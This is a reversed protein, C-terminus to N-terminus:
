SLCDAMWVNSLKYYIWRNEFSLGRPKSRAGRPRPGGVTRGSHGNWSCCGTEYGYQHRRYLSVTWSCCGNRECYPVGWGACAKKPIEERQGYCCHFLKGGFTKEIISVTWAHPKNSLVALQIGKKHLEQLTEAMGDYPQIRDTPDAAYYGNYITRLHLLKEETFSGKVHTLMRRM